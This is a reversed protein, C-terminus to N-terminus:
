PQERKPFPKRPTAPRDDRSRGRPSDGEPWRRPPRAGQPRARFPRGGSPREGTPREARPRAAFPKEGRPRDTFPRESRPREGRPRETRAGGGPGTRGAFPKPPFPRREFPRGGERPPRGGPHGDSRALRDTRGAGRPREGFQPREGRPPPSGARPPREGGYREGREGALRPKSQGSFPPKREGGLRNGREGSFREGREGEFRPKRNGRFASEREGGFRKGREGSVRPQRDDRFPPQGPQARDFKDRHFPRPGERRGEQPRGSFPSREGTPRSQKRHSFDGRESFRPEAPREPRREFPRRPRPPTTEMGALEMQEDAAPPAVSPQGMEEDEAPMATEGAEAPGRTFTKRFEAASRRKRPAALGREREGAMLQDVEGPTLHRFEGPKLTGLTLRGIRVRRLKRVSHGILDFMRRIQNQRGEQLIVEYWPNGDDGEEEDDDQRRPKRSKATLKKRRGEDRWDEGGHQPLPRIEAPLTRRGDMMVGERLRDLAEPAPTGHVKAWYTKNVGFGTSLIRNAFEGDNTFLLLGESHFDLRGVPYIREKIHKFFEMVTPRGEPDELTTVCGRPKNFLLYVHPTSRRLPKGDVLIEDKDPDAKTGLETVAPGNLRVRGATILDEADRRSCLGAAAIIKQLRELPM